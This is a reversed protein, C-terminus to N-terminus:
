RSGEVAREVAAQSEALPQMQSWDWNVSESEEVNYLRSARVFDTM